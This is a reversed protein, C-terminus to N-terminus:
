EETPQDIDVGLMRARTLEFDLLLAEACAADDVTSADVLPETVTEVPTETDPNELSKGMQYGCQPCTGASKIGTTRTGIGAGQLVPSVEFVRVKRIVRVRMGDLEGPVAELIDFGFSWEQLEGNAKVTEYHEKGAETQLYFQGKIEFEGDVEDIPGRGVTPMDWKHGWQCVLVDSGANSLSDSLIVDQDYDIVGLKAFRATFSGTGDEQLKIHTSDYRKYVRTPNEPTALSKAEAETCPLLKIVRGDPLTIEDM